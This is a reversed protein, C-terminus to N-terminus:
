PAPKPAASKAEGAAKQTELVKAHAQQEKLDDDLCREYRGRSPDHSAGVGFSGMGLGFGVGMGVGVSGRQQQCKEKARCVSVPEEGVGPCAEKKASSACGVFIAAVLIRRLM